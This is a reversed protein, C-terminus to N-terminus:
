ATWELLVRAVWGLLCYLLGAVGLVFAGVIAGGIGNILAALLIIPGDSSWGAVTTLIAGILAGCVAGFMGAGIVFGVLRDSGGGGANSDFRGVWAGGAVGILFLLFGLPGINVMAIIGITAGTACGAVPNAWQARTARRDALQPLNRRQRAEAETDLQNRREDRAILATSDALLAAALRSHPTTM